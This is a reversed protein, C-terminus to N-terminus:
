QTLARRDLIVGDITLCSKRGPHRKETAVVTLAALPLGFFCALRWSFPVPRHGGKGNVWAQADRAPFGGFNGPRRTM